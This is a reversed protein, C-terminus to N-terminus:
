KKRDKMGLIQTAGVAAGPIGGVLNAPDLGIDLGTKLNESFAPDKTLNMQKSLPETIYSKLQEWRKVVPEAIHESMGDLASGLSMDAAPIAGIGLKKYMMTNTKQDIAPKYGQSEYFARLKQAAEERPLGRGGELPSANLYASDAGNKKAAQEIKKLAKAGYGKEAELHQIYAPRDFNELYPMMEHDLMEVTDLDRLEATAKAKPSNLVLDGDINKIKYPVLDHQKEAANVVEPALKSVAEETIGLLKSLQKFRSM